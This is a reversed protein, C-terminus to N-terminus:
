RYAKSTSVASTTGGVQIAETRQNCKRDFDAGQSEKLRVSANVSTLSRGHLAASRCGKGLRGPADYQLRCHQESTRGYPKPLQLRAKVIRFLLKSVYCTHM